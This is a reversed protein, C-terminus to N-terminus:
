FKYTCLSQDPRATIKCQSFSLHLSCRQITYINLTYNNKKGVFFRGKWKYPENNIAIEFRAYGNHWFRPQICVARNEDIVAGIVSETDFRCSIRDTPKFCPGTINVVTGGLMTGSEPAFMLPLNAGDSFRNFNINKSTNSVYKITVSQDDTEEIMIYSGDVLKSVLDKCCKARKVAHFASPVKQSSTIDAFSAASRSLSFWVVCGERLFGM